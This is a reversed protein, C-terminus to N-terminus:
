SGSNSLAASGISEAGSGQLSNIAQAAMWPVALKVATSGALLVTSALMTGRAGAAYRWISRYLNALSPVPAVAVSPNM